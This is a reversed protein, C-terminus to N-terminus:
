STNDNIITDLISKDSTSLSNTFTVKLIETDEYWVCYEISKDTMESNEVDYHIGSIANDDDDFSSLDPKTDINTYTYEM